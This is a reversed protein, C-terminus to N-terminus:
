PNCFCFAEVPLQFSKSDHKYVPESLVPYLKNILKASSSMAAQPCSRKQQRPPEKCDQITAM